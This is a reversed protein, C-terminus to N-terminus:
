AFLRRGHGSHPRGDRRMTEVNAITDLPDFTRSALDTVAAAFVTAGL